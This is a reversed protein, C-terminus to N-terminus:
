DDIQTRVGDLSVVEEEGVVEASHAVGRPVHVADGPGLVVSEGQMSIRFRGSFVADMKDADHTHTGFVTGPPYAYCSVRYGLAELKHRLAPQSLPLNQDWREVKM